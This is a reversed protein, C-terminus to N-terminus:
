IIVGTRGFVAPVGILGASALVLNKIDIAEGM